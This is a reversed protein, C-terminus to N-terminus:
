EAFYYYFSPVTGYDEKLVFVRKHDIVWRVDSKPDLMNGFVRAGAPCAELCAPLRGERTRHLCFTCKEMVGQSRIRNSLYAQNPNVEPAPIVPRTWNFRRAHYPCAAECYRCGICWNYDIVVLGDPEKWTAKVADNYITRSGDKPTGDLFVKGTGYIIDQRGLRLDLKDDLMNKLDLYLNDVILEDPFEWSSVDAAADMDPDEFHRFENVVRAKVCVDEGCHMAGGIRTRFRFFHNEGGRTVGPPDAIIPIDDFHVQRVRVDGGWECKIGSGGAFEGPAQQAEAGWAAGTCLVVALIGCILGTKGDARM